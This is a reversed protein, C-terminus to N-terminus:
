CCIKFFHERHLCLIDALWSSAEHRKKESSLSFSLILSLSFLSFLYLLSLSPFFFDYM